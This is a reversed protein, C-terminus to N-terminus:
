RMRFINAPDHVSDDSGDNIKTYKLTSGYPLMKGCHDLATHLKLPSDSYRIIDNTTTM